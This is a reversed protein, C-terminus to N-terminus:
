LQQEGNKLEEIAREISCDPLGFWEKCYILFKDWDIARGQYEAERIMDRMKPLIVENHVDIYKLLKIDVDQEPIGLFTM